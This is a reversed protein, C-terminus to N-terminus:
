RWPVPGGPVGKGSVDGIMFFLHRDNVLFYDYLDGGVERAPELVAAIEVFEGAPPPSVKEAPLEDSDALGIKLESEIREKAATAAALNAMYEKLAEQM